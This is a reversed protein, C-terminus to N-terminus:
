TSRGSRREQGNWKHREACIKEQSYMYNEIKETTRNVCVNLDEIKDIIISAQHGQKEEMDSKWKREEKILETVCQFLEKDTNKKEEKYSKFTDIIDKIAEKRREREEEIRQEIDKIKSKYIFISLSIIAVLLPTAWRLVKDFVSFFDSDGM